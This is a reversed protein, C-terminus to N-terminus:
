LKKVSRGALVKIKNSLDDEEKSNIHLLSIVPLHQNKMGLSDQREHRLKRIKHIPQPLIIPNITPMSQSRHKISKMRRSEYNM